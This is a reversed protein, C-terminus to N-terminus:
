GLNRMTVAWTGALNSGSVALSMDIGERYESVVWVFVIANHM